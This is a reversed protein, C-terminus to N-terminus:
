IPLNEIGTRPSWLKALFSVQVGIIRPWLLQHVRYVQFLFCTVDLEGWPMDCPILIYVFTLQKKRMWAIESTVLSNTIESM